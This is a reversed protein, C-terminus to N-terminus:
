VLVSIILYMRKNMTPAAPMTNPASNKTSPAVSNACRRLMESVIIETVITATPVENGSSVVVMVAIALFCDEKDTPFIIPAFIISIAMMRGIQEIIEPFGSGIEACPTNISIGIQRSQTQM